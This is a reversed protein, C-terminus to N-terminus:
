TINENGLLDGRATVTGIVKVNKTTKISTSDNPDLIFFDKNQMSTLKAVLATQMNAFADSVASM